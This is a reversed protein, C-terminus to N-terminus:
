KLDEKNPNCHHCSKGAKHAKICCEHECEKGKAKAKVCCSQGAWASSAGLLFAVALGALTIKSNM